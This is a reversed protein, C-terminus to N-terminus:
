TECPIECAEPGSEIENDNKYPIKKNVSRNWLNVENWVLIHIIVHVNEKKIQKISIEIFNMLLHLHIPTLSRM